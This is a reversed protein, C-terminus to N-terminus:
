SPGGVPLARDRDPRDVALRALRLAVAAGVVAVCGALTLDAWVADARVDTGIGLGHVVAAVWGAYALLHIARWSRHRMRARVASTVAVVLFLDLALAGLGLWVPEYTSGAWPVLTQWWRIDVYSDVVATTVHVALMVVSLLALNRHLSQTVFRPLGRGARGGTALVGLATTMTFLGLIVFGTGRNLYWLFPGDMM